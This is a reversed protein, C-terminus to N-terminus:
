RCEHPPHSVLVIRCCCCVVSRYSALRCSISLLLLLLVVALLFSGSAQQRTASARSTTRGFRGALTQKRTPGFWCCQTSGSLCCGVATPDDNTTSFSPAKFYLCAQKSHRPDVLESGAMWLWWDSSCGFRRAHWGCVGFIWTWSLAVLISEPWRTQKEKSNTACLKM